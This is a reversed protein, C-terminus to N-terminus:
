LRKKKRQAIFAAFYTSTTPPTVVVYNLIVELKASSNFRKVWTARSRCVVLTLLM